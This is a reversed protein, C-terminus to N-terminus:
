ILIDALIGRIADHIVEEIIEKEYPLFKMLVYDEGLINPNDRAEIGIRIRKFDNGRLREEVNNVGNHGIPAKGSQIKYKGLKIDLDDHVLIFSNPIDTIDFKKILKSVADGSNNMYTLPKQLVAIIKTGRRVFSLDSMFIKEEEWDSVVIDKQYLFKERLIDLFLFGVNHRTDEFKKGPNGLGTILKM